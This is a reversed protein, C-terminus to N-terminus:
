GPVACVEGALVMHNSYHMWRDHIDDYSVWSDVPSCSHDPHIWVAAYGERTPLVCCRAGMALSWFLMFDYPLGLGTPAGWIPDLLCGSDLTPGPAGQEGTYTHEERDEEHCDV